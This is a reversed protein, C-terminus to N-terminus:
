LGHKSLNETLIDFIVPNQSQAKVPNFLFFTDSYNGKKKTDKELFAGPNKLYEEKIDDFLDLEEPAVEKVIEYSLFSALEEINKAMKEGCKIM